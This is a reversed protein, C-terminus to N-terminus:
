LPIPRSADNDPTRGAASAHRQELWGLWDSHCDECLDWEQTILAECDRCRYTDNM